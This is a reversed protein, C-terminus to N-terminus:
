YFSIGLYYELACRTSCWHIKVVPKNHTMTLIPREFNRTDWVTIMNDIFSALHRDNHPHVSLGYVSKTIATNM